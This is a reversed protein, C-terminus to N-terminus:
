TCVHACSTPTPTLAPTPTPTHTSTNFIVVCNCIGKYMPEFPLHRLFPSVGWGGKEEKDRDREKNRRVEDVEERGGGGGTEGGRDSRRGVLAGREGGREEGRKDSRVMALTAEFPAMPIPESARGGGVGVVGIGGKDGGQGGREM